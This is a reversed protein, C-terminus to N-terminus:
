VLMSDTDYCSVEETDTCLYGDKKLLELLMVVAFVVVESDVLLGIFWLSMFLWGDVDSVAM